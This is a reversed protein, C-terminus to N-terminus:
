GIVILWTAHRLSSLRHAIAFTTRGRVLRAIPQERLKRETPTGFASTAEDLVLIRPDNLIACAISIWLREGDSLQTGLEGM